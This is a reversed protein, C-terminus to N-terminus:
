LIERRLSGSSETFFFNRQLSQIDSDIQHFQKILFRQSPVFDSDFSRKRAVQTHEWAGDLTVTQGQKYEVPGVGGSRTKQKESEDESEWDCAATPRWSDGGTSRELNVSSPLEEGSTAM